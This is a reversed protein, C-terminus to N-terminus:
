KKLFINCKILEDLYENKLSNLEKYIISIKKELILMSNDIVGKIRAKVKYDTIFVQDIM